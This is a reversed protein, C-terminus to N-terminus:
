DDGSPLQPWAALNLLLEEGFDDGGLETLVSDLPPSALNVQALALMEKEIREWAHRQAQHAEAQLYDGLEGFLAVAKPM